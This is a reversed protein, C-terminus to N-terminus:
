RETVRTGRNKTPLREIKNKSFNDACIEPPFTIQSLSRSRRSACEKRDAQTRKSRKRLKRYKLSTVPNGWPPPSSWRIRRLIEKKRPAPAKVKKRDRRNRRNPLRYFRRRGPSGACERRLNIGRLVGGAKGAGNEQRMKQNKALRKRRLVCACRKRDKETISRCPGSGPSCPTCEGLEETEKAQSRRNSKSRTWIKWSPRGIFTRRRRQKGAAESPIIIKSEEKNNITIHYEQSSDRHLM